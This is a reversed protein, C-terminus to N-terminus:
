SAPISRACAGAVVCASLGPHQDPSAYENIRGVFELRPMPPNRVM